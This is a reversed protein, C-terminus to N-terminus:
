RGKGKAPSRFLSVGCGEFRIGIMQEGIHVVEAPTMTPRRKIALRFQGELDGRQM